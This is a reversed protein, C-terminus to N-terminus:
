SLHPPFTQLLHCFNYFHFYFIINLVFLIHYESPFPYRTKKLESILQMGKLHNEKSSDKKNVETFITLKSSHQLIELETQKIHSGPWITHAHLHMSCGEPIEV